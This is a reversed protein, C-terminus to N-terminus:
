QQSGPSAGRLRAAEERTPSRISLIEIDYTLDKGALPHNFDVVVTTPRVEVIRALVPGEMTITQVELGKTFRIDDSFKEKPVEETITPDYEGFADAAKVEIRKRDGVKMGLLAQELAPIWFNAGIILELPVRGETSDFVTGDALTGKYRVQVIKKDAVRPACGLLALALLAVSPFVFARKM